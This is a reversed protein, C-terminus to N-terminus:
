KTGAAPSKDLLVLAAAIAGVLYVVLQIADTWIVAAMGGLYTYAITVVGIILISVPRGL